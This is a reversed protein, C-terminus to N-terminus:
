HLLLFLSILKMNIAKLSILHHISMGAQGSPAALSTPPIVTSYPTMKTCIVYHRDDDTYVVLLSDYSFISGPFVLSTPATPNAPKTPTNFYFHTPVPHFPSVSLTM